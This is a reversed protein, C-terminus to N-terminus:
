NGNKMQISKLLMVLKNIKSSDTRSYYKNFSSISKDNKNENTQACAFLASFLILYLIKFNM